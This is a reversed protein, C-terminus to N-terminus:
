RRGRRGPGPGGATALQPTRRGVRLQRDDAATAHPDRLDPLGHRLRRHPELVRPWAARWGPPISLDFQYTPWDWEEEELDAQEAAEELAEERAEIRASLEEPLLGAFPYTVVQEPHLVCPEPVYGEYGVVQPRAPEALVEAVEWSRRWRLDTLMGTRNEGHADFPCWFVQLLDCGDPGALLDPVDKRYLQALGILPLPDTEEAGTVRHRRRLEALLSREEDTPGSDPDRAWATALVRRERHIDEPRRGSRHRHPETCVPWPEDM